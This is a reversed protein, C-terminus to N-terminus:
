SLLEDEDAQQHHKPTCVRTCEYVSEIYVTLETQLPTAGSVGWVINRNTGYINGDYASKMFKSPQVLRKVKIRDKPPLSDFDFALEVRDATVLLRQPSLELTSLKDMVCSALFLVDSM